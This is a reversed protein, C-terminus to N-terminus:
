EAKIGVFKIVKAWKETEDAILKSFDAPSGILVATGVEALRAKMKFDTLGANIQKNLLAIIEDPTGKPAGIGVTGSVEYGPVFDGIPPLNPLVDSREATTVALALLKGTQVYGISSPIPDFMVEVRGSLLDSQAAAEGRAPVQVMDVGAMMKFLEAAMYTLNGTGTSTVNIQGPHAKAYAIFEPVTKAPFSPNVVMIFPIGGISAVPAIDRIFNFKLDPYLTANVVNPAAVMLLTYGDPAARAVLETAINTAAGPRNEIVFSQGLRESLWEGILRAFLDPTGGAPFGVIIRVPRSPYSQAWATRSVAPLVAAGAALHFFQRRPLKVTHEVLKLVKGPVIM